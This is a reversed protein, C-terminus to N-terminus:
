LPDWFCDPLTFRRTAAVAAEVDVDGFSAIASGWHIWGPLRPNIHWAEHTLRQGRKHEGALSLLMGAAGTEFPAGQAFELAREACEAADDAHESFLCHIGLLFHAY